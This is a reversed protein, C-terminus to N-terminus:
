SGEGVALVVKGALGGAALLDQAQAAQALPLVQAVLPKIKGAEVLRRGYNLKQYSPESSLFEATVRYKKAAAEDPPTVASFM